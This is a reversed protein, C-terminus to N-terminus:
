EVVVHAVFVTEQEAGGRSITFTLDTTGASLAEFGYVSYGDAGDGANSDPGMVLVSKKYLAASSYSPSDIDYGGDSVGDIKVKFTDGGKLYLTIGTDAETYNAGYGEADLMTMMRDLAVALEARNVTVSPKFSGDSYGQIIGAASLNQVAGAYWADNSVDSFTTYAAAALPVSIVLSLLLFIKKM